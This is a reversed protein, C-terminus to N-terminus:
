CPLHGVATFSTSPLRQDLHGLAPLSSSSWGPKSMGGAGLPTYRSARTLEPQLPGETVLLLGNASVWSTAAEM